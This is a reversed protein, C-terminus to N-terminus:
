RKGAVAAPYRQVQIFGGPKIRVVDGPRDPARKPANRFIYNVYLAVPRGARLPAEEIRLTGVRPLECPTTLATCNTGTQRNIHRPRRSVKKTLHSMKTERPGETLLLQSGVFVDYPLHGVGVKAAAGFTFQQDPELRKLKQSYLVVPNRKEVNVHTRLRKETRLTRPDPPPGRFRTVNIRGRGQAVLGGPRDIGLLIHENSGARPNNADVVLNVVCDRLVCPFDDRDEIRLGVNKFVAVCHHERHPERQRCTRQRRQTLAMTRPGHTDTASRAIVLQLGVRPDYRYPRTVCLSGRKRCNNTTEIEASIRLRDGQRMTPLENASMSIAVKREARPSRTIPVKEREEAPDKTSRVSVKSEPDPPGAAAGAVALSAVAACSGILARRRRV